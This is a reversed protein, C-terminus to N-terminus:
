APNRVALRALVRPPTFLMHLPDLAHPALEADVPNDRARPMAPFGNRNRLM